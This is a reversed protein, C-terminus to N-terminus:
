RMVAVRRSQTERGDSLRLLYVGPPVSAGNADRGDWAVDRRGMVPGRHITAIRRGALDWASLELEVSTASTIATHVGDRAPNPWPASLGIASAKLSGPVGSTNYTMELNLTTDQLTRFNAFVIDNLGAAPSKVLLRFARNDTVVTASGSRATVDDITLFDKNTSLDVFDLNVGQIPINTFAEKVHVTVWHGAVHVISGLNRAGAIQLSDFVVPLLKASVPPSFDVRFKYLPVQVSVDGTANSIDHQTELRRRFPLSDVDCDVNPVAVGGSTVSHATLAVGPPLALNPLTLDGSVVIGRATRTAYLGGVPPNATIDYVGSPIVFSAVGTAATNDTPTFLKTSSNSIRVDLDAGNIPFLSQDSVSATVLYGSQVELVGLAQDLTSLNVGPLVFPVKRSAATPVVDIDWLGPTVLTTFDGTANTIDDQTQTAAAGTTPNHFNLNAGVVPLGTSGLLRGSVMRGAVLTRNTTITATSTVQIGNRVDDFLRLSPHPHFVIDYKGAPVTVSYNGTVTTTDGTIAIMAGNRNDLVDIDLPYVGTGAPNTVRGNLIAASAPAALLAFTVMLLAPHTFRM